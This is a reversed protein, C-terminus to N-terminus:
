TLLTIRDMTRRCPLSTARNWIALANKSCKAGTNGSAQELDDRQLGPCLNAQEGKDKNQARQNLTHETPFFFSRVVVGIRLIASLEPGTCQADKLLEAWM